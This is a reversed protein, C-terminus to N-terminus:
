DPSTSIVPLRLCVSAGLGPGDSTIEIAGHMQKMINACYHLGYSKMKEGCGKGPAFVKDLQSTELGIGNDKFCILASDGKIESTITLIGGSFGHQATMAQCANKFLFYFVRMLKTRDVMLMPLTQLQFTMQAGIDNLTRMEQKLTRQVLTNLDVAELLANQLGAHKRQEGLVEVASGAQELLRKSEKRGAMLQGELGHVTKKLVPLLNAARDETFLASLNDEYSELLKLLRKLSSLWRNDGLTEQVLHGSIRASNLINGINHLVNEANEAMGAAHAAETLNQQTQILEELERARSFANEAHERFRVITNSDLHGFAEPDETSGFILVGQAPRGLVLCLVSAPMTLDGFTDDHVMERFHNGLTVGEGLVKFNSVYQGLLKKRSIIAGVGAMGEAGGHIAKVQFQSRNENYVLFFSVDTEPFIHEGQEMVVRIVDELSVETNIARVIRELAVKERYQEELVRNQSALEATRMAVENELRENLEREHELKKKQGLLYLYFFSIFIVGYITLAWTTLWPPPLVNIRVSTSKESWVGDKNAGKVRFVYNGPPPNTYVAFRKAGTTYIWDDDMGEMKYAYKNSNPDAYNLATFEFSIVDDPYDFVLSKVYPMPRDLISDKMGPEQARNFLYLESIVLHPPTEDHRIDSPYFLNVGNVGGFALKGNRTKHFAGTNFENSQLGDRFNYNEFVETETNLRSIGMNTSMWLMGQEGELIGYIVENPLGEKVGFRVMEGSKLNLRNLGGGYLGLWLQDGADEFFVNVRNYALSKPDEPDNKYHEREGTTPNFLFFGTKLSGLCLRGDKLQYLSIINDGFAYDLVEGTDPDVKKLGTRDGLWMHSEQDELMQYIRGDVLHSYDIFRDEEPKYLALGDESTGAWLRNERDEMLCVVSNSHVKSQEQRYNRTEGKEMDLSYLGDGFTGTWLLGRSDDTIATIHAKFPTNTGPLFRIHNFMGRSPNYKNLGEAYTGLWMIGARDEFIEIIINQSLSHGDVLNHQFRHCAGTKPYYIFLGQAAGIWLRGQSDATIDWIFAHNLLPEFEIPLFTESKPEFLILGGRTGVWVMGQDDMYMKWVHDHNLAANEANWSKSEGTKPDFLSLGGYSGVLLKGNKLPLVHTVLPNPLKKPDNPDAAFTVFEGGPRQDEALYHLGVDSGVWLGRNEDEVVSFIWQNRGGDEGGLYSKQFCGTDEDYYSLGGGRAGVWLVGDSDTFLSYINNSPLSCPNDRDVKFVKFRYGDFRNLGDATGFWLFGLRDQAIAQITVQSLGEELSFREVWLDSIQNGRLSGPGWLLLVVVLHPFSGFRM